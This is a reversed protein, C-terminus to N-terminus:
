VTHQKSDHGKQAMLAPFKVRSEKEQRIQESKEHASEYEKQNLQIIEYLNSMVFKRKCPFKIRQRYRYWIIKDLYQGDKKWIGCLLVPLSSIISFLSAIRPSGTSWFIGLFVPFIIVLAIGGCILQRKTFNGWVKHEYCYIDEPIQVIM